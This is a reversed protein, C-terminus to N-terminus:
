YTLWQELLCIRCGEEDPTLAYTIKKGKADVTPRASYYQWRDAMAQARPTIEVTHGDFTVLRRWCEHKSWVDLRWATYLYDSDDGQPRKDQYENVVPQRELMLDLTRDAKVSSMRNM